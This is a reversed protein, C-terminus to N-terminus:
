CLTYNLKTYHKLKAELTEIRAQLETIEDITTEDALICREVYDIYNNLLSKLCIINFKLETIELLLKIEESNKGVDGDAMNYFMDFGVFELDEKIEENDLNRNETIETAMILM